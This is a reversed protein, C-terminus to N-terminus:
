SYIAGVGFHISDQSDKWVKGRIKRALHPYIVLTTCSLTSLDGESSMCDNTKSKSLFLQVLGEYMMQLVGPQKRLRHTVM